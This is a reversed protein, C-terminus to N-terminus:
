IQKTNKMQLSHVVAHFTDTNPTKRVRIKGCKPKIRHSVENRETNLGLVAFYPGFFELCPCKKHLAKKKRLYKGWSM